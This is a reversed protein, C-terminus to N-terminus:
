ENFYKPLEWNIDLHNYKEKEITLRWEGLDGLKSEKRAECHSYVVITSVEFIKGYMHYIDDLFVRYIKEHVSDILIYVRNNYYKGWHTADSILLVGHRRGAVRQSAVSLRFFNLDDGDGSHFLAEEVVKYSLSDMTHTGTSAISDVSWFAPKINPPLYQSIFKSERNLINIVDLTTHGGMWYEDEKRIYQLITDGFMHALTYIVCNTMETQHYKVDGIIKEEFYYPKTKEM